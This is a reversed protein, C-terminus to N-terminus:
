QYRCIWSVFLLAMLPRLSVAVGGSVHSVNSLLLLATAPSWPADRRWVLIWRRTGRQKAPYYRVSTLAGCGHRRVCGCRGQNAADAGAERWVDPAEPGQLM